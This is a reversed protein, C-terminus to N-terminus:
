KTEGFAARIEAVTTGPEATWLAAAKLQMHLREIEAQAELFCETASSYVDKLHEIEAAQAEIRDAWRTLTQYAFGDFGIQISAEKRIQAVLVKDDDTM